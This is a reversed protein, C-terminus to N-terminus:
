ELRFIIFKYIFYNSLAMLGIVICKAIMLAVGGAYLFNILAGSWIANILLLLAMYLLQLIPNSQSGFVWNRQLYFGLIFGAILAIVNAIYVVVQRDNVLEFYPFFVNALGLFLLLDLVVSAGGAALYRAVHILSDRAFYSNM